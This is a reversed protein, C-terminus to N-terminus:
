FGNGEVTQSFHMKRTCEEDARLEILLEKGGESCDHLKPTIRLRLSHLAEKTLPKYSPYFYFICLERIQM